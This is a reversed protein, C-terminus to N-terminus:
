SRPGTPLSIAAWSALVHITHLALTVFIDFIQGLIGRSYDIPLFCFCASDMIDDFCDRFQLCSALEYDREAKPQV